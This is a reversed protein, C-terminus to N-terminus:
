LQRYKGSVGIEHLFRFKSSHAPGPPHPSTSKQGSQPEASPASVRHEELRAMPNNWQRRAWQVRRWLQEPRSVASIEGISDRFGKGLFRPVWNPFNDYIQFRTEKNRELFIQQIQESSLGASELQGVTHALEYRVLLSSPRGSPKGARKWTRDFWGFPDPLRPFTAGDHLEDWEMKVRPLLDPNERIARSIRESAVKRWGEELLTAPGDCASCCFVDRVREMWDGWLIGTVGQCRPCWIQPALFSRPEQVLLRLLQRGNLRCPNLGAGNLQRPDTEWLQDWRIEYTRGRSNRGIPSFGLRRLWLGILNPNVPEATDWAAVRKRLDGLLEGPRVVIRDWTGIRDVLVALLAAESSLFACKEYLDRRAHLDEPTIARGAAV